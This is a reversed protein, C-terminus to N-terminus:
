KRGRLINDFYQEIGYFAVGSRNVYGLINSMFDGYPYYRSTFPELVLSYLVPTRILKPPDSERSLGSVEGRHKRKLERIEQALAPNLGSVIKVYKREQLDFLKSFNSGIPYKRKQLLTEVTRRAIEKNAIAGPVIYLYNESVIQLYPLNLAKVEEM